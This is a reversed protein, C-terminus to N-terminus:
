NKAFVFVVPVLKGAVTKTSNKSSIMEEPISYSMFQGFKM